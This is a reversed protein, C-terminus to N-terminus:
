RDYKLLSHLIVFYVRVKSNKEWFVKMKIYIHGRDFM